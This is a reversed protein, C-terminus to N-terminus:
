NIWKIEHPLLELEQKNGKMDYFTTKIPQDINNLVAYSELKEYYYCDSYVNSSWAKKYLGEKHAAWLLSKYVLRYAEYSDCLSSIYVARGKGYENVALHINGGIYLRTTPNFNALESNLVKAGQPYVGKGQEGFHVNKMEVDEIIWHNDLQGTFHKIKTYTFGIEKQVGLVDSLQFYKGQYNYGSPDGIGIFGGGNAVFERIKSLLLENKWYYDGQFASGALGTNVLVDYKSLDEKMVEDFSIFSVDVPQACIANFFATYGSTEAKNDDTFTGNMMWSYLRGWYSIVAIKVHSYAGDKGTKSKILRFEDCVNEILKCFKPYSDAIRLYGGFGIRDICKKLLGRRESNWNNTLYLVGEDDSPCENPFFYPNLRGETYKIGTMDTLLRIYPGSHPAGVVADLGISAFYPNYPETGIRHDGDFMMAKKGYKHVIDVFMKAWKCCLQQVYDIYKRTTESPIEFRSAYTGGTVIDELTVDFSFEKKLYSFMEPSASMAYTHWDWYTQTLGNKYLIFFNYFFTTFRVVTIEPHEQCWKEMRYLMHNLAEPYIPDLDIDIPVDKWDNSHYNYIQVPDWINKGFFSVTYEHYKIANEILVINNGLYKWDKHLKGTTRDYVQWYLEKRDENVLIAKNFLNELLDIKLENSFATKRDTILAVSQLLEPHEKAYEHDERVIFYAKYVECGFDQVNKPLTVGDCDRVADAGWMEIYKKTEEVFTADTPITVFGKTKSM